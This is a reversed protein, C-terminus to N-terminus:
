NGIIYNLLSPGSQPDTLYVMIITECNDNDNDDNMIMIVIMIMIIVYNIWSLGFIVFLFLDVTCM